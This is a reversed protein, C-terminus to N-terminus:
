KNNMITNPHMYCLIRWCDLVDDLEQSYLRESSSNDLICDLTKLVQKETEESANLRWEKFEM